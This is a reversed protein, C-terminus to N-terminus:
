IKPKFLLIQGNSPVVELFEQIEKHLMTLEMHECEQRMFKEMHRVISLPKLTATTVDAAVSIFIM